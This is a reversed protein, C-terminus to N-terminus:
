EACEWVPQYGEGDSLYVGELEPTLLSQVDRDTEFEACTGCSSSLRRPVPKLTCAVNEGRLKKAFRTAGFHSHFTAVYLM